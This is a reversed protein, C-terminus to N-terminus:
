ADAEAERVAEAVAKRDELRLTRWVAFALLARERRTLRARLIVALDLWPHDTGAALACAIARVAGLRPGLVSALRDLTADRAPIADTAGFHAEAAPQTEAPATPLESARESSERPMELGTTQFEATRPPAQIWGAAGNGIM